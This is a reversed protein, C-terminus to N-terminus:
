PVIEVVIETEAIVSELVYSNQSEDYACGEPLCTGAQATLTGSQATAEDVQVYTDASLWSSCAEEIFMATGGRNAAGAYNLLLMGDLPPAYWRATVYFHQGGQEGYDLPRREGAMFPM